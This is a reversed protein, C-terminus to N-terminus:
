FNGRHLATCSPASCAGAWTASNAHLLRLPAGCVDCALTNTAHPASVVPPPLLQSTIPETIRPSRRKVPAAAPPQSLVNAITGPEPDPVFIETIRFDGKKSKGRPPAPSLSSWDIKGAKAKLKGERIMKVVAGALIEAIKKRRESDIPINEGPEFLWGGETRKM